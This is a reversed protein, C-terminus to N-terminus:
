IDRTKIKKSKEPTKNNERSYNTVQSQEQQQKM